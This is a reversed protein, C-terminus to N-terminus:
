LISDGGKKKLKIIAYLQNNKGKFNRIGAISLKGHEKDDWSKQALIYFGLDVRGGMVKEFLRHKEVLRQAINAIWGASTDVYIIMGGPRCVRVFESFCPITNQVLLLDVSENALPLAFTDAQVHFVDTSIDKCNNRAQTLMGLLIDFAIFTAHPFHGAAQKTVFGTGTGCDVVVSITDGAIEKAKALGEAMSLGYRGQFTDIIDQYRNGYLRGFCFSIFFRTISLKAIKPMLLPPTIISFLIQTFFHALRNFPNGM